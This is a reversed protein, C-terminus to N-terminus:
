GTASKSYADRGVPRQPMGGRQVQIMERLIAEIEELEREGAKKDRAVAPRPRV